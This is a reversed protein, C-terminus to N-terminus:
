DPGVTALFTDLNIEKGFLLQTIPDDLDSPNITIWLSLPSIYTTTSWIKSRLSLRTQDSGMVHGGTAHIHKKLLCVAPNSILLNQNEEDAAKLMDEETISAIVRADAEFNWHHMQIWPSLLAQCCLLIGCAYFPFSSHIQFWHDHYQLAWCMQELFSVPVEHDAEVGGEGYPFLIPFAQKFLNPQSPDYERYIGSPPCGFDNVHHTGHRVTYGGEKGDKWLNTLGWLMLESLSLKSMDLDMIGLNEM